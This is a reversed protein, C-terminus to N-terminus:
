KKRSGETRQVWRACVNRFKLRDHMISYALGHACRLATAVRDTMISRDTRILEEMRQMTAERAIEVPHGPPDDDVVISHRESFKEVLNHVAKRSLCKV